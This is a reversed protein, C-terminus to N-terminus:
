VLMHTALQGTHQKTTNSRTTSCYHQHLLLAAYEHQMCAHVASYGCRKLLLWLWELSVVHAAAFAFM